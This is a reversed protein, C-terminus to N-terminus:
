RLGALKELERKAEEESCGRQAMITEIATKLAEREAARKVRARELQRERTVPSLRSAPTQVQERIMVRMLERQRALREQVTKVQEETAMALEKTTFVRVDGADSEYVDVNLFITEVGIVEGYTRLVAIAAEGNETWQWRISRVEAVVGDSKIVYQGPQPIM